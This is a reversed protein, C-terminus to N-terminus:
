SLLAREALALEEADDGRPFLHGYVDMTMVISGHGLREQMVKPPLCLGGDQARSICWSAYVHRFAHFGSDKAAVVPNGGRRGRRDRGGGRGRDPGAAARGARHQEAARGERSRESIGSRAGHGQQACILKWERLANIVMPPPVTREGSISKSKGITNFRDARQHVRIERRELDVDSWRLGRLESVRLGTFIATLLL